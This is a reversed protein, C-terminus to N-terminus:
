RATAEGHRRLPETRSEEVPLSAAKHQASRRAHYDEAHCLFQNFIVADKGFGQVSGDPFIVYERGEDVVKFLFDPADVTDIKVRHGTM